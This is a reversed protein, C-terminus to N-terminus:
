YFTVGTGVSDVVINNTDIIKSLAYVIVPVDPLLCICKIQPGADMTEWVEIGNTRLTEIEKLLAISVPNWYLIPPTASLMVGFMRMSSQRTLSGLLPLDKHSLAKHAQTYLKHSQEIWAQYYPSTQASQNMAARSSITKKQSITTCIIIRLEPWFDPSFLQTASEAGKNWSTFGGFVARAASGSGIRALKSIDNLDTSVNCLKSVALALAAFGSSSSALGAAAAFNNTSEVKFHCEPSTQERVYDFFRNSQDPAQPKGDITVTDAQTCLSVKTTTTLKSLTIALSPVAPINIGHSEKGWYKIIALSPHAITTCSTM